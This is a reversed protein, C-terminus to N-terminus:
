CDSRGTTGRGEDRGRGGLCLGVRCQDESEFDNFLEADRRDHREVGRIRDLRLKSVEESPSSCLRLSKPTNVTFCCDPAM